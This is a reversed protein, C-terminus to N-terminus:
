WGGSAGGGGFSGGGGSFSSGSSSSFSSGSSFSSSSSYSSGSYSSSSSGGGGTFFGGKGNHTTKVLIVVFGLMATPILFVFVIATGGILLGAWVDYCLIFFIILLIVWLKKKLFVFIIVPLFMAIMILWIMLSPRGDIFSVNEDEDDYPVDVYTYRSTITGGNILNIIENVGLSIGLYFDGNKFEPVIYEDLIISAYADTIVSELGYGVEIRLERDEKAVLLIVGNDIGQQGIKWTDAVRMSYEEITEAGTTPIILIVVQSGTSDELQELIGELKYIENTGLTYTLDTVRQELVPISIEQAQLFNSVLILLSLFILNKM